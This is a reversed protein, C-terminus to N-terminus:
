DEDEAEDGGAEDAAEVTVRASGNRHFAVHVNWPRCCVECDQVYEQDAGGGPDLAIEQPEGCYPCIVEADGEGASEGEEIEDEDEFEM